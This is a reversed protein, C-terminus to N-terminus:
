TSAISSTAADSRRVIHLHSPVLAGIGGSNPRRLAHVAYGLVDLRHKGDSYVRTSEGEVPTGNNDISMAMDNAGGLALDLLRLAEDTDLRGDANMSM